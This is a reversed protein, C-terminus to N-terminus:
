SAWHKGDTISHENYRWVVSVAIARGAVRRWNCARQPNWLAFSDFFSTLQIHLAHATGGTVSVFHFEGLQATDPGLRVDLKRVLVNFKEVCQKAFKAMIVAHDDRPNPVGAVAVYCDGITEVKYVGLRGAITDFACYVTELLAFVQTPDRTSSWATFGAIDAFLVTTEPFLDAIPKSAYVLVDDDDVLMEVRSHENSDGSSQSMRRRIRNNFGHFSENQSAMVRDRVTAPFLSSVIATSRTASEVVIDNRKRVVADYAFFFSCLMVFGFAVVTAVMVPAASHYQNVLDATAYLEFSYQCHNPFESTHNDAYDYFPVVRRTHSYTPEHQDGPGVYFAQLFSLYLLRSHHLYQCVCHIQLITDYTGFVREVSLYVVSWL